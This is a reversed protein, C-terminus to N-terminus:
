RGSTTSFRRVIYASAPLLIALIALVQLLVIPQGTDALTAGTYTFNVTASASELPTIVIGTTQDGATITSLAAFSAGDRVTVTGAVSDTVYAKSFDTNFATSRPSGGISYVTTIINSISNVETVFGNSGGNPSTVYWKTADGNPQMGTPSGGVSINSGLSEAGIDVPTVTSGSTNLLFSTNNSAIGLGGCQGTFTGIEAMTATNIVHINNDACDSVYARTGTSNFAVGAPAFGTYGTVDTFTGPANSDYARVHAGGIGDFSTIWFEDGSPTYVLGITNTDPATINNSITPAAQDALSWVKVANGGFGAITVMQAGDPRMAMNTQNVGGSSINSGVKEDTAANIVTITADGANTAYAYQVSATAEITKPGATQGSVNLSWNGSADSTTTGVTSGGVKVTILRKPTATGSVTFSSGGVSSNSTPSTITIATAAGAGRATLIQAIVLMSVLVASLIRKTYKVTVRM